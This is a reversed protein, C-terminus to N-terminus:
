SSRTCLQSEVVGFRRSRYDDGLHKPRHSSLTTLDACPPPCYMTLTGSVPPTTQPPLTHAKLYDNVEAISMPKGLLYGQGLM